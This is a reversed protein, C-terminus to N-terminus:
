TSASCWKLQFEVEEETPGREHEVEIRAHSPILVREGAIQIRFGRGKEMCDALRRLKAAFQSAPYSREVDRKLRRRRTAM